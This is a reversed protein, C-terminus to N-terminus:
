QDRFTKNVFKVAANLFQKQKVSNSVMIMKMLDKMLQKNGQLSERDVFKNFPWLATKM